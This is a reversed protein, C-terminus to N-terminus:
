TQEYIPVAERHVADAIHENLRSCLDVKHGLIKSLDDEYRFYRFGLGDIAGPLFEALVDIDSRHPDFDDRIVSGFLSLRKIGRERCFRAVREYDISIPLEAIRM